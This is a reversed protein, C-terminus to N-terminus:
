VSMGTRILSVSGIQAPRHRLLVANGMIHTRQGNVPEVFLEYTGAEPLTFTHDLEGNCASVCIRKGSGSIYGARFAASTREGMMFFTIKEGASVSVKGLSVTEGIEQDVTSVWMSDNDWMEGKAPVMNSDVADTEEALTNGCAMPVEEYELLIDRVIENQFGCIAESVGETVLLCVAMLLVALVAFTMKGTKKRMNLMHTLRKELQSETYGAMSVTDKGFDDQVSMDTLMGAYLCREKGSRDALVADDCSMENVETYYEALCGPFPIFWYLSDLWLIMKQYLLDRRKCHILEHCLILCTEKEGLEKQPFFIEPRLCGATFPTDVAHCIWIPIPKKLGSEEKFREVFHLLMDDECPSCVAKLEKLGTRSKQYFRFLHTLAALMWVALMLWFIWHRGYYTYSIPLNNYEYLFGNGSGTTSPGTYDFIGRYLFLMTVAPQICLLYVILLKLLCDMQGMSLRRELRKRGCYFMAALLSGAFVTTLMWMVVDSPEWLRIWLSGVKLM